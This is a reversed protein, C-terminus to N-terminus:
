TSPMRGVASHGMASRPTASAFLELWQDARREWSHDAAFARREARRTPDFATPAEALVAEVFEERSSAVAVHPSDLWRAAPLDTSVVPLGAAVYELMKLPFSARNFPSAADYPVIGVDMAALYAPLAEFPRGGLWRVNPRAVLPTLHEPALTLHPPGVLLVSVGRAALAELLEFDIRHSVQGIFGAVPHPLGAADIAPATYETAAFREAQVGNPILVTDRGRQRWHDCLTPSAAVVVDARSAMRRESRELRRRPMGVLSAAAVYDDKAWHIGLGEGDVELLGPRPPVAIVARARAGLRDLAREVSRHMLRSTLAHGVPREKGGPVVPAVRALGPGLVQLRTARLARRSQRDRFAGALSVPPDVYLVPLHRALQEALSQDSLRQGDWRTGAVLVVFEEGLPLPATRRGNRSVVQVRPLRAKPLVAPVGAGGGPPRRLRHSAATVAPTISLMAPHPPPSAPLPTLSPAAARGSEPSCADGGDGAAGGEDPEDPEDAGSGVDAGV